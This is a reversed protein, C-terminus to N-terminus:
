VDSVGRKRRASAVPTRCSSSRSGEGCLLGLEEPNYPSFTAPANGTLVHFNSRAPQCESHSGRDHRPASIAGEGMEGGTRRPYQNSAIIAKFRGDCSHGRSVHDRRRGGEAVVHADWLALLIDDVFGAPLDACPPSTSGAAPKFPGRSRAKRDHKARPCQRPADTPATPTRM